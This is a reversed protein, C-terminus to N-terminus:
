EEDPVHIAGKTTQPSDIGCATRRWRLALFERAPLLDSRALAGRAAELDLWTRGSLAAEACVLQEDVGDSNGTALSAEAQRLIDLSELTAAHRAALEAREDERRAEEGALEQRLLALQDALVAQMPPRETEASLAAPAAVVITSAIALITAIRM